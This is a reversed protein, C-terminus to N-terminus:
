LFKWSMFAHKEVITSFDNSPHAESKKKAGDDTKKEGKKQKEESLCDDGRVLRNTVTSLVCISGHNITQAVSTRMSASHWCTDFIKM